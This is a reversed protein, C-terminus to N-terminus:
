HHGSISALPSFSRFAIRTRSASRSRNQSGTCAATLYAIRVRDLCLFSREPDGVLLAAVRDSFGVYDVDDHWHSDKCHVHEPCPPVYDRPDFPNGTTGQPRYLDGLKNTDATKAHKTEEPITDAYWLERHSEFAQGVRMLYFLYNRGRGPGVGTFGAIWKGIWEDPSMSTRVRHKCACLTVLGGKINPGSGTQVLCGSREEVSAAVYCYVTGCEAVLKARLEDLQPNANRILVGKRPFAQHDTVSKCKM